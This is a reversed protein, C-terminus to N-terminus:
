YLAQESTDVLPRRALPIRIVRFAVTARMLLM